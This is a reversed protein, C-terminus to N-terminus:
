RTEFGWESREPSLEVSAEFKVESTKLL